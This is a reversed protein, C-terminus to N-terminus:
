SRRVRPKPAHLVYTGPRRVDTGPKKLPSKRKAGLRTEPRYGVLTRRHHFEPVVTHGKTHRTPKKFQGPNLPASM